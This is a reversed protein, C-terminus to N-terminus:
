LHPRPRWRRQNPVFHPRGSYCSPAKLNMAFGGLVSARSQELAPQVLGKSEQVQAQPYVREATRGVVGKSVRRWICGVINARWLGERSGSM